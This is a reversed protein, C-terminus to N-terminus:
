RGQNVSALEAVVDARADDFSLFGRIPSSEPPPDDYSWAVDDYV